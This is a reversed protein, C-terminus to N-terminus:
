ASSVHRAHMCRCGAPSVCAESRRLWERGACHLRRRRRHSRRSRLILRYLDTVCCKADSQCPTTIRSQHELHTGAGWFCPDGQSLRVQGSMLCPALQSRVQGRNFVYSSSTHSPCDLGEFFSYSQVRSERILFTGTGIRAYIELQKQFSFRPKLAPKSTLAMPTGFAVRGWKETPRVDELGISYKTFCAPLTAIRYTQIDRVRFHPRFAHMYLRLAAIMM